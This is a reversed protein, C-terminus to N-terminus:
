QAASIAPVNSLNSIAGNSIPTLIVPATLSFTLRVDKALTAQRDQKLWMVTSVGAGVGAGVLAGVGGGIMAGAAAAGGTTLSAVAINEKLNDRRKLTGEDTVKFASRSTDILQAHVVYRTGDPLLVDRTELHLAAAGTIRHGSHVQTVQGELTSGIPIIVRGDKEVPAMVEATFPTGPLTTATSLNQMVRTQLLTGENLEGKRDPVTTVIQGDASGDPLDNDDADQTADTNTVAPTSAVTPGTYPVYTGYVVTNAAAPAPTGAAPKAAETRPTLTSTAPADDATIIVPDPNSVGTAQAFAPVTALIFAAATIQIKM